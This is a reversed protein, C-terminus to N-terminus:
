LGTWKHIIGLTNKGYYGFILRGKVAKEPFPAVLCLQKTNKSYEIESYDRTQEKRSTMAFYEGTPLETIFFMKCGVKALYKLVVTKPARSYWCGVILAGVNELVM